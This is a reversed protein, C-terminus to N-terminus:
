KSPESRAYQREGDLLKWMFGSTLSIMAANLQNRHSNKRQTTRHQSQLSVKITRVSRVAKRWGIVEVHLRQDIFDDSREISESSFKKKPDDQAPVALESQHNPGLTSGKAM